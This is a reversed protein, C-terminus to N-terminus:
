KAVAVVDIYYEDGVNVQNFATPNDITMTLMGSPTYKSWSYNESAPDSSYVARLAIHESIKVRENDYTPTVSECRFKARIM